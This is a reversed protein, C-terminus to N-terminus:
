QKVFKGSTTGKDSIIKIFYAGTKMGSVDIAQDPNSTVLILQGVMNYIRVSLIKFNEKAHINLVNQAPNPSLSFHNDFDVDQISLANAVTTTATNTVIPFNYDFYISASNSFTNGLVLTPKTKIKFVIYGDNHADDFPLQINQFIFEVKGASDIKTYYPHSGTLPILTSIDFKNTDIMDKVVINEANATGTNEFRIRYHVYKGVMAPTITAGELCTKDNPDFSNIATEQLNFTNDDPTEDVASSTVTATYSLVDGSNVAPTEIPSNLNMVMLIERTEFPQLDTFEWEIHNMTESSPTPNVHLLDMVADNYTFGVIGSQIQNGKNHYVIKYNNDFGPRADFLAFAEVELDNRIGNPSICFQQALPSAMAPFNVVVSPPSVNIYEPHENIPTMTYTGNQPYFNFKGSADAIYTNTETANAFKVKFHSYSGDSADCGNNNLDYKNIGNITNYSTGGPTFSCYSSTHCQAYGNSNISAQISSLQEEDACVYKMVNTSPQNSGFNVSESRGNKVFLYELYYNNQAQITQVNYLMSFDLTTFNNLRCDVTTLNDVGSMQLENLGSANCTLTTLAPLNSLTLTRPAATGNSLGSCMITNLLQLGSINFNVLKNSSCNLTELATLDNIALQSLKNAQCNLTKLNVLGSVNLSTLNQDLYTELYELQTLASVDLSTIQSNSKITLKKLNSFYEIGVASSFVNGGSAGDAYIEYVNLAESVQVEGDGNTDLVMYGGSANRATGWAKIKVKFVNDPFNITQSSAFWSFILLAAIFIKKIM